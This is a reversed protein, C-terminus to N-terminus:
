PLMAVSAEASIGSRKFNRYEELGTVLLDEVNTQDDILYGAAAANVGVVKGEKVAFAPSVMLDLMGIMDKMEGM